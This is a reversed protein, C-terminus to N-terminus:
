RRKTPMLEHPAAAHCAQAASTHRRSSTAQKKAENPILENGRFMAHVDHKMEVPPDQAHVAQDQWRRKARKAVPADPLLEPHMPFRAVLHGSRLPVLEESSPRRVHLGECGAPVAPVDWCLYQVAHVVVLLLLEFFEPSFDFVKEIRSSAGTWARRNAKPPSSLWKLMPVNSM